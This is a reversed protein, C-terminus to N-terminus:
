GMGTYVPGELALQTPSPRSVGNSNVNKNFIEAGGQISDMSSAITIGLGSVEWCEETYVDWALAGGGGGCLDEGPGLPGGSTNLSLYM